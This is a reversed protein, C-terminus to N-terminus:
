FPYVSTVILNLIMVYCMNKLITEMRIFFVYCKSKVARHLCETSNMSNNHINKVRSPAMSMTLSSYICQDVIIGRIVYDPGNMEIPDRKVYLNYCRMFEFVQM